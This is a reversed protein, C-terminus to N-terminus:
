LVLQDPPVHKQRCSIKLMPHLHEFFLDYKASVAWQTHAVDTIPNFELYPHAIKVNRLSGINKVIRHKPLTKSFACVDHKRHMNAINKM